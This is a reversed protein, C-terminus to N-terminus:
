SPFKYFFIRFLINEWKLTSKAVSLLHTIIRRLVLEVVKNGSIENDYCEMMEEINFNYKFIEAIVGVRKYIETGQHKVNEDDQYTVTEEYPMYSVIKELEDETFTM